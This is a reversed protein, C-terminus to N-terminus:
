LSYFINESMQACCDCTCIPIDHQYFLSGRYHAGSHAYRLSIDEQVIMTHALRSGPYKHHSTSSAHPYACMEWGDPFLVGNDFKRTM